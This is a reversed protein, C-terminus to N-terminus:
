DQGLPVRAQQTGRTFYAADISLSRLQWGDVGEGPALTRVAGDRGRVMAVADRGLRGAVGVLEPADAPMATAGGADFLPRALAASMPPPARWDIADAVVPPAVPPSLLRPGIMAAPIALALAALAAALTRSRIM